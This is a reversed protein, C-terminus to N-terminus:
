SSGQQDGIYRRISEDTVLSRRGIKIRKLKGENLLTDLTSLGIGLMKLTEYRSYLLRPPSQFPTSDQM